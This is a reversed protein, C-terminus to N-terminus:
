ASVEDIVKYSIINPPEALLGSMKAMLTQVHKGSLHKEHDEKSAWREFGIIVTPDDISHYLSFAVCGDQARTPIAVDSLAQELEGEKGPLAKASAIVFLDSKSKKMNMYKIDIFGSFRELCGSLITLM